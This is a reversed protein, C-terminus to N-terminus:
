FSASIIYKYFCGQISFDSVMPDVEINNRIILSDSQSDQKVLDVASSVYGGNESDEDSKNNISIV